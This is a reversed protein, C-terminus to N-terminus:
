ESLEERLSLTIEFRGAPQGNVKLKYVWRLRLPFPGNAWDGPDAKVVTTKTELELDAARSRYRGATVRGAAFSQEGDVAGRRVIRLERGDWRVTTGIHAEAESRDEYRVYVANPKRYLTGAYERRESKGGDQRSELTVLVRVPDDNM